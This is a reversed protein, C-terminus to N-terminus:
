LSSMRRIVSNLAVGLGVVLMANLVSDAGPTGDELRETAPGASSSTDRGRFRLAADRLGRDQAAVVFKERRAGEAKREGLSPYSFNGFINGGAQRDPAHAGVAMAGPGATLAPILLLIRIAKRNM